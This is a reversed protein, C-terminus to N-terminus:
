RKPPISYTTVVHAVPDDSGESYLSIDGTALTKGLKLIRGRAIIRGPAPKRLFNISLNTTVALAVPGIQALLLFYMTADALEMMAPGSVTGGPRLHRDSAIMSVEINEDDVSHIKCNLHNVQPFEDLIFQELMAPTMVPM